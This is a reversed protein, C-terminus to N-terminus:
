FFLERGDSVDTLYSLSVQLSSKQQLEDGEKWENEDDLADVGVIVLIVDGTLLKPVQLQEKQELQESNDFNKLKHPRTEKSLYNLM